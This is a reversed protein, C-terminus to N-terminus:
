PLATLLHLIEPKLLFTGYAEDDESLPAGCIRCKYTSREDPRCPFAFSWERCSRHFVFPMNAQKGFVSQKRGSLIENITHQRVEGTKRRSIGEPRTERALYAQLALLEPTVANVGTRRSVLLSLLHGVISAQHAGNGRATSM